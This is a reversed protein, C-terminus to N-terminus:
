TVCEPRAGSISGEFSTQLGGSLCFEYEHSLSNSCGDSLVAWLPILCEGGLGMSLRDVIRELVVFIDIFVADACIKLRGSQM